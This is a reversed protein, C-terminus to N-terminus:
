INLCCLSNLSPLIINQTWYLVIIQRMKGFTCGRGVRVWLPKLRRLKYTIYEVVMASSLRIDSLFFHACVLFNKYTELWPLTVTTRLREGSNCCCAALHFAFNGRTFNCIERPKERDNVILWLLPVYCGAMWVDAMWGFRWEDANWCRLLKQFTFFASGTFLVPNSLGSVPWCLHEPSPTPCRHGCCAQTKDGVHCLPDCSPWIHQKKSPKENQSWPKILPRAFSRSTHVLPVARWLRPSRPSSVFSPKSSRQHWGAGASHSMSVLTGGSHRKQGSRTPSTGRGSYHARQCTILKMTAKLVIKKKGCTNTKIAPRLEDGKLYSKEKKKDIFARPGSHILVSKFFLLSVHRCSVLNWGKLIFNLAWKSKKRGSREVM